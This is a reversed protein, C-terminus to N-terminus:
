KKEMEIEILDHAQAIQMTEGAETNSVVAGIGPPDKTVRVYLLDGVTPRYWKQVIRDFFMLDGAFVNYEAKQYQM